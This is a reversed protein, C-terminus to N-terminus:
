ATAKEISERFRYRIKQQRMETIKWLDCQRFFFYRTLKGNSRM